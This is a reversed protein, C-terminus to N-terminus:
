TQSFTYHTEWYRTMTKIMRNKYNVDYRYRLPWWNQFAFTMVTASEISFSLNSFLRSTYPVGCYNRDIRSGGNLRVYRRAGLKNDEGIDRRLAIYSGLSIKSFPFVRRRRCSSSIILASQLFKTNCGTSLKKKNQSSFLRM